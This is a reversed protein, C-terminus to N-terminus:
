LSVDPAYYRYYQISVEHIALLRDLYVSCDNINIVQHANVHSCRMHYYHSILFLAKYPIGM